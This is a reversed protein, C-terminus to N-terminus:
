LPKYVQLSYISIFHYLISWLRYYFLGYVIVSGWGGSLRWSSEDHLVKYAFGLSLLCLGGLTTWPRKELCIKSCSRGFSSKPRWRHLGLSSFQSTKPIIHPDQPNYPIITIWYPFGKKLWGSNPIDQSDSNRRRLAGFIPGALDSRIINVVTELALCLSGTITKASVNRM